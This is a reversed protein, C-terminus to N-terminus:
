EGKGLMSDTFQEIRDLIEMMQNLDLRSKQKIHLCNIAMLTAMEEILRIGKKKRKNIYM